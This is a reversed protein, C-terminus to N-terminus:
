KGFKPTQSVRQQERQLAEVFTRDQQTLVPVPEAKERGGGGASFAWNWAKEIPDTSTVWGTATSADVLGTAIGFPVAVVVGALLIPANNSLAILPLAGLSDTFYTYGPVSSGMLDASGHLVLSLGSFGAAVFAVPMATGSAPPIMELVLSLMGASTGIKGSIDGMENLVDGVQRLAGKHEPAKPGKEAAAKIVVAAAKAEIEHERHLQAARRLIADLAAKAADNEVKAAVVRQRDADSLRGYVFMPVDAAEKTQAIRARAARAEMELGTARQQLHSLQDAWAQLVARTSTFAADMGVFKPRLVMLRARMGDAAPGTWSATAGVAQDIANLITASQDVARQVNGALASVAAPIGPAPNVLLGPFNPDAAM